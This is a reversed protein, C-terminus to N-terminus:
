RPVLSKVKVGWTPTAKHCPKCLTRGNNLDFTLEPYWYRPRIHDAELNGGKSDGCNTCTFNDRRMVAKRWAQYPQSKWITKSIGGKWQPHNKGQLKPIAIGTKNQSIRAKIIEANNSILWSAPKGKKSKWYCKQSCYNANRIRCPKVNVEKTCIFCNVIM